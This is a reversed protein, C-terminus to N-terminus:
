EKIDYEEKIKKLADKVTKEAEKAAIESATGKRRLIYKGIANIIAHVIEASTNSISKPIDTLARDIIEKSITTKLIDPLMEQIQEKSWNGAKNLRKITEEIPISKGHNQSIKTLEKRMKTYTSMGPFFKNEISEISNRTTGIPLGYKQSLQEVSKSGSMDKITQRLIEGINTSKDELKSNTFNRDLVKLVEGEIDGGNKLTNNILDKTIKGESMTRNALEESADSIDKEVKNIGKSLGLGVVEKVSTTKEIGMKKLLIPLLTTGIKRGLFGAGIQPISKSEELISKGAAIGSEKLIGEIDKGEDYAKKGAKYGTYLPPISMLAGVVSASYVNPPVALAVATAIKTMLNNVVRDMKNSHISEAYTTLFDQIEKETAQEIPVGTIKKFVESENAYPNEKFLEEIDNKVITANEDTLEETQPFRNVRHATPANIANNIQNLNNVFDDTSKYFEENTGIKAPNPINTRLAIISNRAQNRKKEFDLTDQIQKISLSTPDYLDRYHKLTSDTVPLGENRIMATILDTQIAREYNQQEPSMTSFKHSGYKILKSLGSSLPSIVPIDEGALTDLESINSTEKKDRYNKYANLAEQTKTLSSDTNQIEDLQKKYEKLINDEQTTTKPQYNLAKSFDETAKPILM